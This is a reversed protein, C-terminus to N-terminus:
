FGLWNLWFSLSKGARIPQQQVRVGQLPKEPRERERLVEGARRDAQRGGAAAGGRSGRRGGVSGEGEEEEEGEVGRGGGRAEPAEEGEVGRGGGRAEPAEPEEAAAPEQRRLEIVTAAAAAAEAAGGGGRRRREDFDARVEPAENRHWHWHWHWDWGERKRERERERERLSEYAFVRLHRLVSQSRVFFPATETNIVSSSLESKKKKKKVYRYCSNCKQILFFFLKTSM